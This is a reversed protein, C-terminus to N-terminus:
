GWPGPLKVGRSHSRHKNGGRVPSRGRASGTKRLSRRPPVPGGVTKSRPRRPPGYPASSMGGISGSRRRTLSLRNFRDTLNGITHRLRGAIRNVEAQLEDQLEQKKTLSLESRAWNFEIKAAETECWIAGTTGM